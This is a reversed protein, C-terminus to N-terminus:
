AQFNLLSYKIQFINNNIFWNLIYIALFFIHWSYLSIVRFSICSFELRLSYLTRKVSIMCANIQNERSWNVYINCHFRLFFNILQM